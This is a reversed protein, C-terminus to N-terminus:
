FLTFRFLFIYYGPRTLFHSTFTDYPLDSKNYLVLTNNNISEIHARNSPVVARRVVQQKLSQAPLHNESTEPNNLDPATQLSSIQIFNNASNKIATSAVCITNLFVFIVALISRSFSSHYSRSM